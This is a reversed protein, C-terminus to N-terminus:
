GTYDKLTGEYTYPITVTIFFVKVKMKMVTKIRIKESEMLLNLANKGIKSWVEKPNASINVGIESVSNAKIVNPAYNVIKTLFVDNIYVDYEQQRITFTLDSKNEFSIYINFDINNLSINNIKARTFKMVYNMIKKYQLYALAGAITVVGIAGAIIYKKQTSTM